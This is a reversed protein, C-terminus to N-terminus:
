KNDVLVLSHKTELLTLLISTGSWLLNGSSDSIQGLFGSRDDSIQVGHVVHCKESYAGLLSFNENGWILVEEENYHLLGFNLLSCVVNSISKSQPPNFGSWKPLPTVVKICHRLCIFIYVKDRPMCM